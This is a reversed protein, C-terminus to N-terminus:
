LNQYLFLNIFSCFNGGEFNLENKVQNSFCVSKHYVCRLDVKALKSWVVM